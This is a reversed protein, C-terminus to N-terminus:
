PCPGWAALVSLLDSIGVAGDDDLDEQCGDCPGWAALVELLDAIDVSGDNAFDAPCLLAIWAGTFLGHGIIVNGNTSIAQCVELGNAPVNTVGLGELYDELLVAPGGNPRIWARRALGLIDFGVITGDDAIDMAIGTWGPVVPNFIDPAADGETWTFPKGNWEGLLVTGEDNIGHVEGLVDGDPPDLLQGNGFAGWIAPTRSFSGQAFGGILTGDGSVVSARNNGNALSELAITGGAETWLFGTGSCGDWALGVAATGDASLEYASM